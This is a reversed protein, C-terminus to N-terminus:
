EKIGKVERNRISLTKKQKNKFRERLAVTANRTVSQLLVEQFSKRCESLNREQMEVEFLKWHTKVVVSCQFQQYPIRNEEKFSESFKTPNM